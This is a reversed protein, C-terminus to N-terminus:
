NFGILTLGVTLPAVEPARGEEFLPTLGYEAFLNWGGVGIQARAAVRYPLLNYTGNDRQKKNEGGERYRQKYMTSFYWSGVVGAAFHFNGKNNYPKKNLAQWSAADTPLPAKKTNFEFMLPLRLGIQRMKNKSFQPNDVPIAYTSDGDYALRVNESLHYGTFELGLGWFMGAHHSGFEHKQEMFNISVWRSRMNNLLMPGAKPGDGIRGDNTLFTNVGVEIGSWYTFQNRRERRAAKLRDGLSDGTPIDTRDTTIIRILKRQTSIRITDSGDDDNDQVRAYAGDKSSLGLELRHKELGTSSSDVHTTDTQALVHVGLGAAISLLLLRTRM